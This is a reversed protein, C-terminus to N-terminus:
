GFNCLGGCGGGEDDDDDGDAVVVAVFVLPMHRLFRRCTTNM